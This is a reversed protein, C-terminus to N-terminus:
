DACYECRGYGGSDIPYYFADCHGIPQVLSLFKQGSPSRLQVPCDPNDQQESQKKLDDIWITLDTLDLWGYQGGLKEDTLRACSFRTTSGADISGDCVVTLGVRQIHERHREPVSALEDKSLDRTLMASFDIVGDFNFDGFLFDGVFDDPSERYGRMENPWQLISYNPYAHQLVSHIRDIDPPAIFDSDNDAASISSLMLGALLAIGLKSLWSKLLFRQIERAAAIPQSKM